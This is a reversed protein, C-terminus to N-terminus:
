ADNMAQQAIMKRIEKKDTLEKIKVKGTTNDIGTIVAIKKDKLRIVSGVKPKEPPAKEKPQKEKEEEDEKEPELNNKRYEEIADILKDYVQEPTEVGEMDVMIDLPFFFLYPKGQGNYPNKDKDLPVVCGPPLNMKEGSAAIIDKNMIYDTAFNWIRQLRNRRNPFTDNYIHLAEHALVAATEAVTMDEMLFPIYIYLNRLVDVGMTNCKAKDYTLIIKMKDVFVGIDLDVNKLFRKARTLKDEIPAFEEPTLKASRISSGYKKARELENEYDSMDGLDVSKSTSEVITSKYISSYLDSLMKDDERLLM